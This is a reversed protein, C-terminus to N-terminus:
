NHKLKSRHTKYSPIAQVILVTIFVIFLGVTQLLTFDRNLLLLEFLAIEILMLNNIISSEFAELHKQSWTWLTFALSGNIIGLFLVIFIIKWSFIPPGEIIIGIILMTIAGILMPKMVLEQPHINKNKILHRTWTLHIAYGVSSLLVFIIGALNQLGFEWPYYYSGAGVIVGVMGFWTIRKIKEKIALSAIVAVLTTNGINLLLSTQTPTLFFQGAYQLGQGMTYGTIGLLVLQKVSLKNNLSTKHKLRNNIMFLFLVAVSYRLGALTLPGIGEGFALVNLFYSSSWLLTVLFGAIMAILRINM